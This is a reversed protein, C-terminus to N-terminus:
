AKLRASRAMEDQADKVLFHYFVVAPPITGLHWLSHADLAAWLPPFDFLELSMAVLVWVVVGVPWLAWGQRTQRYRKWSFTCWLVNQVAGCAVCALTNYTYDWRWLKLYGVHAAYLGLCLATWLRLRARAEATPRDWRGLRVAAYYMGYLVSAGAAFYDLQETVRFDRTHFVASLIWTVFGLKALREYFPRMTFAPPIRPRVLKRLGYWHAAFNGLSFLVSFPEQMGLVRRFPWKGHFQVVPQPPHSALRRSTIIQQCTYDCEAPCTWFLLRRHLPIPTQHAADPGCNELKCIELCQKFEPLQDGISARVPSALFLFALFLLPLM